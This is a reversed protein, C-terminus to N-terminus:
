PLTTPFAHDNPVSAVAVAVQYGDGVSGVTLEYIDGPPVAGAAIGDPATSIQGYGSRKWYALIAATLEAMRAATLNHLTTSRSMTICSQEITGASDVCYEVIPDPTDFIPKANIGAANLAATIYSAEQNFVHRESVSVGIGSSSSCGGTAVTVAAALAALGATPTTRIM